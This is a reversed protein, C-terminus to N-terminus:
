SIIFVVFHWGFIIIITIIAAMLLSKPNGETAVTLLFFFFDSPKMSPVWVKTYAFKLGPFESRAGPWVREMGAM